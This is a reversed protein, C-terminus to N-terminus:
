IVRSTRSTSRPSWRAGHERLYAGVARLAKPGAFDGVIPVILNRSECAGERVRLGGGDRSLHARRRDGLGAVIMPGRVCAPAPRGSRRRTTSTPASAISTRPVRVRHGDLDDTASRCRTRRRRAHDHDGGSERSGRGRRGSPAGLVREDPRGRDDQADLGAPRPQHVAARRLRARDASLEFLAKYM